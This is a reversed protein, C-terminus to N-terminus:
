STSRALEFRLVALRASNCAGFIPAHTLGAGRDASEFYRGKAGGDRRLHDARHQLSLPYSCTTRLPRYLIAFQTKADTSRKHVLLRKQLVIKCVVAIGVGVSKERVLLGFCVFILELTDCEIAPSRRTV